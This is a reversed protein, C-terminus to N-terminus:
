AWGWLNFWNTPCAVTYLHTGNVAQYVGYEKTAAVTSLKELNCLADLEPIDQATELKLGFAEHTIPSRVIEMGYKESIAKLENKKM